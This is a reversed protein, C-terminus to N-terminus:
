ARTLLSNNSAILPVQIMGDSNRTEIRARNLQTNASGSTAVTSARTSVAALDGGIPVSTVDSALGGILVTRPSKSVQEIRATRGKARQAHDAASTQSGSKQSYITRNNRRANDIPTMRTRIRRRRTRTVATTSNSVETTTTGATSTSKEITSPTTENMRRNGSNDASALSDTCNPPPERHLYTIPWHRGYHGPDHPGFRDHYRGDDNHVSPRPSPLYPFYKESCPRWQDESVGVYCRTVSKSIRSFRNSGKSRSLLHSSSALSGRFALIFVAVCIALIPLM